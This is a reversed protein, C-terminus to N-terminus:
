FVRVDLPQTLLTSHRPLRFQVIKNATVLNHFTITMHFGYGDIIFPLWADRRQNQTHDIFHQLCDLETDENAYGAETIGILTEGDLNNNKCWKHIINVKSILLMLPITEGASGICELSTIYDRNEPDIIWLLKNPDMTVVLQAKGCGIRFGKEDMNWMDLDTFRKESIVREVKEFYDSIDHVGHSHKRNAAM